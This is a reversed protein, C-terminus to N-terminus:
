EVLNQNLIEYEWNTCDEPINRQRYYWEAVAGEWLEGKEMLECRYATYADFGITMPIEYVLFHKCKSCIGITRM